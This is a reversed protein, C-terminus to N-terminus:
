SAGADARGGKKAKYKEIAKKLEDYEKCGWSCAKDLVKLREEAKALQNTELYLEGLYENAGRHKPNLRLAANYHEFAKETNGMKRYSFGLLNQIDANKPDKKAAKTLYRAASDYDGAKVAKKGATFDRSGSSYSSRSTSSGGAAFTIAPSLALGMIAVIITLKAIHRM